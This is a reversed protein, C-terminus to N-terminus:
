FGLVRSWGLRRAVAYVLLPGAIGILTGLVLQVGLMDVGFILLGERLAAAFMTHCVYIPMSAVGLMALTDTGRVEAQALGKIAIIFTVTLLSSYLTRWLGFPPNVAPLVAILVAFVALALWVVPRPVPQGIGMHGFIMGIVLYPANRVAHGIWAAVEQPLSQTSIALAGIMLAGLHVWTITGIRGAGLAAYALLHLLFLSWLFWLHLMGPFPLVLVERLGIPHNSYEGAILKAFLFLYTWLILPWILRVVRGKLFPVFPRGAVQRVLFFGSAAFFVPMHFAYLRADIAVFLDAPVMGRLNLGRLVHGVM